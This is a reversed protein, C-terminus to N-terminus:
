ILSKYISILESITFRQGSSSYYKKLENDFKYNEDKWKCFSATFLTTQKECEKSFALSDQITIISDKPIFKEQLSTIKM